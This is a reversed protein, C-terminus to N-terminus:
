IAMISLEFYFDWITSQLSNQDSYHSIEKNGEIQKNQYFVGQFSQLVSKRSTIPIFIFIRPASQVVINEHCTQVTQRSSFLIGNNM